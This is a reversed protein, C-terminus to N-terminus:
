FHGGDDQGHPASLEGTAEARRVDGAGQAAVGPRGIRVGHQGQQSMGLRAPDQLDARRETVHGRVEGLPCGIIRWTKLMPMTCPM